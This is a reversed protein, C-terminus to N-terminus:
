LLLVLFRINTCHTYIIRDWQPAGIYLNMSGCGCDLHLVTGYGCLGIKRVGGRTSVDAVIGNRIRLLWSNSGMEQSMFLNHREM